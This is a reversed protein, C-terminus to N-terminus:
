VEIAAMGEPVNYRYSTVRRLAELLAEVEALGEVILRIEGAECKVQLGRFGETSIRLLSLSEKPRGHDPVVTLEAQAEVGNHWINETRVRHFNEKARGGAGIAAINLRDNAEYGFVLRSDCILVGAAATLAGNLFARRSSRIRKAM